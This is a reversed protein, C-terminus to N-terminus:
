TSLSRPVGRSLSRPPQVQALSAIVLNEFHKQTQQFANTKAQSSLYQDIPSSKCIQVEGRKILYVGDTREGQQYVRENIKLSKKELLPVFQGMAHKYNAAQAGFISCLLDLKRQYKTTETIELISKFNKQSIEVLCVDTLAVLTTDRKSKKKLIDVQGIGSGKTYYRGWQYKFLQNADFFLGLDEIQHARLDKFCLRFEAMFKQKLKQKQIWDESQGKKGSSQEQDILRKLQQVRLKEQLEQREDLCKQLTSGIEAGPSEQQKSALPQAALGKCQSSRKRYM